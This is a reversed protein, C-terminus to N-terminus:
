VLRRRNGERPDPLRGVPEHVRREALTLHIGCHLHQHVEALVRRLVQV